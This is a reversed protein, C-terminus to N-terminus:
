HFMMWLIKGAKWLLLILVIAVIVVVWESIGISVAALGGAGESMKGEVM